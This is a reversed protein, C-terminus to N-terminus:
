SWSSMISAMKEKDSLGVLSDEEFLPVSSTVEEKAKPEETKLANVTPVANSAKFFEYFKFFNKIQDASANELHYKEMLEKIAIQCILSAKRPCLELLRLVDNDEIFIQKKVSM